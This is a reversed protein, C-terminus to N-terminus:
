GTIAEEFIDIINPVVVNLLLGLQVKKKDFLISWQYDGLYIIIVMNDKVLDILYYRGLEFFGEESQSLVKYMQNTLENLLAVAKPKENFAVLAQGDASSWIATHILGAGIKSKLQDVADQMKKVDMIEEKNIYINDEDEQGTDKSNEDLLKMANMMVGMFPIEITQDPIEKKGLNFLSFHGKKMKILHYVAEEGIKQRCQAHIIEGKNFYLFGEDTNDAVKVLLTKKELNILQLLSTLSIAEITGSVGEEDSFFDKIKEKFWNLNFPKLIIEVGGLQKIRALVEASGYATMAIFGGGYSQQRLYVILDLGSEGPMRIDSVILDYKKKNCLDIAEKVSFCIDTTFIDKYEALGEKLGELFFKEDDVLLLQKIM